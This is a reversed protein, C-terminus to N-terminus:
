ALAKLFAASSEQFRPVVNYVTNFVAAGLLFFVVCVLLTFFVIPVIDDGRGKAGVTGMCIGGVLISICGLLFFTFIGLDLASM